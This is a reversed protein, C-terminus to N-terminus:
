FSRFREKCLKGFSKNAQCIGSTQLPPKGYVVEHRWSDDRRNGCSRGSTSGALALCFPHLEPLTFFFAYAHLVRRIPPRPDMGCIKKCSETVSDSVRIACQHCAMIGTDTLDLRRAAGRPQWFEAAANCCCTYFSVGYYKMLCSFQVDALSAHGGSWSFFVFIFVIGFLPLGVLEDIITTVCCNREVLM